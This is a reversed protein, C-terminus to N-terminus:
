CRPSTMRPSWSGPSRPRLRLGAGPCTPSASGFSMGDPKRMLDPREPWSAIGVDNQFALGHTEDTAREVAKLVNKAVWASEAGMDNEVIEGDILELGRTDFEELFRDATLRTLTASM